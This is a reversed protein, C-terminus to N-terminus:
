MVRDLADFSFLNLTCDLALITLDTFNDLLWYLVRVLGASCVDVLIRNNLTRVDDATLEPFTHKMWCLVDEQGALCAQYLMDNNTKRVDTIGLDPFARLLWQLVPVDLVRIFGSNIYNVFVNIEAQERLYAVDKLAPFADMTWEALQVYGCACAEFFLEAFRQHRGNYEVFKPVDEMSLYKDVTDATLEFVIDFGAIEYRMLHMKLSLRMGRVYDDYADAITQPTYVVTTGDADDTATIVIATTNRCPPIYHRPHVLLLKIKGNHFVRAGRLYSEM